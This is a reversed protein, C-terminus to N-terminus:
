LISQMWFFFFFTTWANGIKSVRNSGRTPARSLRRRTLQTKSGNSRSRSYPGCEIMLRGVYKSVVYALGTKTFKFTSRVGPLLSPDLPPNAPAMAEGWNWFDVFFIILYFFFFNLRSVGALLKKPGQGYSNRAGDKGPLIEKGKREMGISLKEEAVKRTWHRWYERWIYKFFLVCM